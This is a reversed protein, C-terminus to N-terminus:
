EAAELANEPAATLEGSFAARLISQKLEGLVRVKQRYIKELRSTEISVADLTAVASRQGSSGMRPVKFNRLAKLSVTKQAAGIAGEKAQDLM